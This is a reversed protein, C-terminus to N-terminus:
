MKNAWFSGNAMHKETESGLFSSNAVEARMLDGTSLHILNFEERLKACQTGKGCGPGGAVFVVFPPTTLDGEAEAKLQQLERDSIEVVAKSPESTPAAEVVFPLGDQGPYPCPFIIPMSFSWKLTSFHSVNDSIKPFLQWFLLILM